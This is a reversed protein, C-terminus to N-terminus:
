SHPRLAGMVLVFILFVLGIGLAILGFGTPHIPLHNVVELLHLDM